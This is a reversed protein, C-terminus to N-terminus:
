WGFLKAINDFYYDQGSVVEVVLIYSLFAKITEINKLKRPNVRQGKKVSYEVFREIFTDLSQPYYNLSNRYMDRLQEEPLGSLLDYFQQFFPNNNTNVYKTWSYINWKGGNPGPPMENLHRMMLETIIPPGRPPVPWAQRNDDMDILKVVHRRCLPCNKPNMMKFCDDCMQHDVLSEDEATPHGADLAHVMKFLNKNELCVPCEGPTGGIMKRNKFNKRYIKRKTINKRTKRTKRRKLVNRKKTKSM